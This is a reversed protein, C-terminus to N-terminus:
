CFYNTLERARRDLLVRVPCEPSFASHNNNEKDSCNICRPNTGVEEIKKKCDNGLHEETCYACRTLGTCFRKTHGYALCKYCQVLPSEDEVQIRQFGVFVKGVMTLIKWTGPEVQCILNALLGNRHKRFYKIKVKEKINLHSNQKQLSENLDDENIGKIVGKFVILPNRERGCQVTLGSSDSTLSLESKLKERHTESTCNIIVKHNKSKRVNNVAIGLSRPNANKKVQGEIDDGTKMPDKSGVVLAYSKQLPAVNRSHKDLDQASICNKKKIELLIEDIKNSNEQMKAGFYEKFIELNDVRNEDKGNEASLEKVIRLLERLSDIVKEKIEKKLNNAGNLQEISEKVLQRAFSCGNGVETKELSRRNNAPSTDRSTPASNSGGNGLNKKIMPIRIGRETM